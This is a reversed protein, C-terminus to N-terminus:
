KSKKLKFLGKEPKYVREPYRELLKWVCGNITKPHFSPHRKEIQSVLETWRLGDPNKELLKFITEYIQHTIPKKM